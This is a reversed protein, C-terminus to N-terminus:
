DWRFSALIAEREARELDADAARCNYTIFAARTDDVLQWVRWYDSGDGDDKVYELSAAPGAALSPIKIEVDTLDHDSAWDRM